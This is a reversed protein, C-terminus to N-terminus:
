LMGIYGFASMSNLLRQRLAQHANLNKHCLIVNYARCIRQNSNGIWPVGVVPFACVRALLQWTVCKLM